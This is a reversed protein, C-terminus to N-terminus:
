WNRVRGIIILNAIAFINQSGIQIQDWFKVGRFKWYRTDFEVFVTVILLMWAILRTFYPAHLGGYLM